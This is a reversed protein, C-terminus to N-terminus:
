LKVQTRGLILAIIAILSLIIMMGGPMMKFNNLSAMGFRALLLIAIILAAWWGLQYSGRMMAVAAGILLLGSIGGALLSATSQAKLYGLVGGAVVLIGYILIIWATTM